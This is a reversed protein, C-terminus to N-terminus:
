DMASDGERGALLIGASAAFVGAPEAGIPTGIGVPPPQLEPKPRVEPM